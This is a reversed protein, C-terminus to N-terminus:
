ETWTTGVGGEQLPSYRRISSVGAEPEPENM